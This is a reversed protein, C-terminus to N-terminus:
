DEQNVKHMGDDFMMYTDPQEGSKFLAVGKEKQLLYGTITGWFASERICTLRNNEVHANERLWDTIRTEDIEIIRSKGTSFVTALNKGVSTSAFAQSIEEKSRGASIIGNSGLILYERPSLNYIVVYAM